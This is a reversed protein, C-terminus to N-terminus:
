PDGDVRGRGREVGGINPPMRDRAHSEGHGISGRDDVLEEEAGLGRRRGGRKWRRDVVGRDRLPGVHEELPDDGIGRMGPCAQEVFRPLPEVDREPGLGGHGHDIGLGPADDAPDLDLFVGVLHHHRRVPLTEEDGVGVAVAHRHDVQGLSPHLFCEDGGEGGVGRGAVRRVRQGDGGVTLHEEDGVGVDIGQRHPLDLLRSGGAAEAEDGDAPIGGADAEGGVAASEDNGIALPDDGIGVAVAGPRSEIRLGGGGIVDAPQEVPRHREDLKGFLALLQRGLEGGPRLPGEGTLRRIRVLKVRRLFEVAMRDREEGSSGTGDGVHDIDDLFVPGVILDEAVHRLPVAVRREAQEGLADRRVMMGEGPLEDEEVVEVDLAFDAGVAVLPAHPGVGGVEDLPLPGKGVAVVAALLKGIGGLPAEVGGGAGGAAVEPIPRDGRAHAEAAIPFPNGVALRGVVGARRLDLSELAAKIRKVAAEVLVVGVQLPGIAEESLKGPEFLLPRHRPELDDAEGVIM